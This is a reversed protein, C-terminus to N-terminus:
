NPNSLFVREQSLYKLAADLVKVGDPWLFGYPFDFVGGDDAQFYVPPLMPSGDSLVNVITLSTKDWRPQYIRAAPGTGRLADATQGFVENPPLSAQDISKSSSWIVLYRPKDGSMVAGNLCLGPYKKHGDSNWWDKQAPDVGARFGPTRANGRLVQFFAKCSAQDQAFAPISGLMAVTFLVVMKMVAESECPRSIPEPM